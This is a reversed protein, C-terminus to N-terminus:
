RTTQGYTQWLDGLGAFRRLSPAAPMAADDPWRSATATMASRMRALSAETAALLDFGGPVMWLPAFKLGPWIPWPAVCVGRDGRVGPGGLLLCEADGLLLTPLESAGSGPVWEFNYRSNFTFTVVVVDRTTQRGGAVSYSLPKGLVAADVRDITAIVPSSSAGQALWVSALAITSIM